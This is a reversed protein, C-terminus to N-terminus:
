TKGSPVGRFTVYSLIDSSNLLGQLAHVM